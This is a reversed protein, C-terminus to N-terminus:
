IRCEYDEVVRMRGLVINRAVPRKLDVFRPYLVPWGERGELPQQDGHKRMRILRAECGLPGVLNVMLPHFFERGRYELPENRLDDSQEVFVAWIRIEAIGPTDKSIRKMGAM